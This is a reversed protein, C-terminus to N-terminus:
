MDQACGPSHGPGKEKQNQRSVEVGCGIDKPLHCAELILRTPRPSVSFFCLKGLSRYMWAPISVPSRRIECPYHDMFRGITLTATLSVGPSVLCGPNLGGCLLAKKPSLKLVTITTLTLLDILQM